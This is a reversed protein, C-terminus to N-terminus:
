RNKLFDLIKKQEEPIFNVDSHMAHNLSKHCACPEVKTNTILYQLVTRVKLINMGFVEAVMDANVAEHEGLGADYDTPMTIYAACIGAERLLHAEPSTTMGVIHHGLLIFEESEAETSYSPGEITVYKARDKYPLEAEEIARIIEQRANECFPKAMSIHVAIEFFTRQRLKTKDILQHPVTLVGLKIDNTLSGCASIGFCKKVGLMRLAWVNARYNVFTPNFEHGNGHRCLFAVRRIQYDGIEVSGSPEGFPGTLQNPTFCTSNKLGVLNGFGSGALVALDVQPLSNTM